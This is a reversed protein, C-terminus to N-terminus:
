VELQWFGNQGFMAYHQIFYGDNLVVTLFSCMLNVCGHLIHIGTGHCKLVVLDHFFQNINGNSYMNPKM